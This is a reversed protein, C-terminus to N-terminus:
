PQADKRFRMALPEVCLFTDAGVENMIWQPASFSRPEISKEFRIGCEGLEQMLRSPLYAVYGLRDALNPSYDNTFLDVFLALGGPKLLREIEASLQPLKAHGLAYCVMVADFHVGYLPVEHFDCQILEFGKPCQDLQSRSINLLTIDLDPRYRKMIDAMAGIGCGMDLVKAGEPLNFLELLKSVHSFDDEALRYIQFLRHGAKVMQQTLRSVIEDNKYPAVQQARQFEGLEVRRWANLVASM